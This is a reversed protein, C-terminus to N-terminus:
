RHLSGQASGLGSQVLHCLQCNRYHDCLQPQWTAGCCWSAHKLMPGHGPFGGGARVPIWKGSTNNESVGGGGRWQCYPPLKPLDPYVCPPQRTRCGTIRGRWSASSYMTCGRTYQAILHTPTLLLASTVCIQTTMGTNPSITCETVLMQLPVLRLYRCFRRASIPATTEKYTSDELNRV